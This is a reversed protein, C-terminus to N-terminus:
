ERQHDSSLLLRRPDLGAPQGVRGAGRRCAAASCALLSQRWARATCLACCKGEETTEQVSTGAWFLNLAFPM